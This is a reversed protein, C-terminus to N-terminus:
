DPRYETQVARRIEPLRDYQHVVPPIRGAVEIAPIEPVWRIEKPPLHHLTAIWGERPRTAEFLLTKRLRLLVNHSAQDFVWSQSDDPPKRAFHGRALTPLHLWMERTLQGLYDHVQDFTGLSVGSCVVPFDLLKEVMGPGYLGRIWSQNIPCGEYTKDELGTVLRDQCREWPDGQILVDRSDALLVRNWTGQKAATWRRATFFRAATVSLCGLIRNQWGQPLTEWDRRALGWALALSIVWPRWRRSTRPIWDLVASPFHSQIKEALGSRRDAPSLLVVLEAEPLHRRVSALFPFTERFDQRAAAAIVAKM